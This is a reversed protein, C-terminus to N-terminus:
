SRSASTPRPGLRAPVEVALRHHAVAQHHDGARGCRSAGDPRTRGGPVQRRGRSAPRGPRRRDTWRRRGAARVGAPARRGCGPTGWRPPRTPPRPRRRDADRRGDAVEHCPVDLAARQDCRGTSPMGSSRSQYTSCAAGAVSARRRAALSRGSGRWARRWAPSAGRRRCRGPRAAETRGDVDREPASAGADHARRGPLTSSMERYPRRTQAPRGIRNDGRVCARRREGIPVLFTMGSCGHVLRSTPESGLVDGGGSWCGRVDRVHPRHRWLKGGSGASWGTAWGSHHNHAGHWPASNAGAWQPAVAPILM